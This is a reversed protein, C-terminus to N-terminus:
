IPGHGAGGLHVAADSPRPRCGHHAASRRLQTHTHGQRLVARWLRLHPHQRPHIAAPVYKEVKRGLDSEGDVHSVLALVGIVRSKSYVGIRPPDSPHQCLLFDHQYSKQDKVLITEHM